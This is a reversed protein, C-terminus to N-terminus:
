NSKMRVTSQASMGASMTGGVLAPQGLPYLLTKNYAVTLSYDTIDYGSSIPKDVRIPLVVTHGPMAAYKGDLSVTISDWGVGELHLTM